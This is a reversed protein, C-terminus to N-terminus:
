GDIHGVGGGEAASERVAQGGIAAVPCRRRWRQRTPRHSTRAPPLLRTNRVAPELGQNIGTWGRCLVFGGVGVGRAIESERYVKLPRDEGRSDRLFVLCLM